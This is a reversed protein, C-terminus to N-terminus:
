LPTGPNRGLTFLSIHSTSWGVRWRERNWALYIWEVGEM